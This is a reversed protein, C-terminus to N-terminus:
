GTKAEKEVRRATFEDLKVALQLRRAEVDAIDPRSTAEGLLLNATKSAGEVAKIITLQDSFRPQDLDAHAEEWSGESNMGGSLTVIKVERVPAFLQERLRLADDYLREALLERKKANSLKAAEVAKVLAPAPADSQLGGRRAWSVITNKPVGCRRAAESPGHEAYLDLATQRQEASYQSPRGMTIQTHATDPRVTWLARANNAFM